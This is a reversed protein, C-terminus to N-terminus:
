PMWRARLCESFSSNEIKQTVKDLEGVIAEVTDADNEHAAMEFLESSDKLSTEISQISNVITELQVRERGLSQAKEVQNWVM